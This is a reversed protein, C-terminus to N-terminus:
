LSPEVRTRRRDERVDVHAELQALVLQRRRAVLPQEGALRQAVRCPVHGGDGDGLLPAAIEGGGREPASAPACRRAFM